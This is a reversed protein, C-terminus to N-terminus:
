IKTMYKKKKENIWVYIKQLEYKKHKNKKCWIYVNVHIYTWLKYIFQTALIFIFKM